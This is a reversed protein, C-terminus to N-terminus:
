EHCNSGKPRAPVESRRRSVPYYGATDVNYRRVTKLAGVKAACKACVAGVAAPQEGCRECYNPNSM